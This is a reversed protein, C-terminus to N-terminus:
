RPVRFRWIQRLRGPGAYFRDRVEARLTIGRRRAQRAVGRPLRVTIGHRRSTGRALRRHRGDATTVVLYFRKRYPLGRPREFTLRRRRSVPRDPVPDIGWSSGTGTALAECSARVTLGPDSRRPQRPSDQGRHPQVIRDRGPGCAARGPTWSQTDLVDDGRGGDLRHRRLSHATIYDDGGRGHIRNAGGGAHLQNDDGDGYLTDDGEGGFVVEVNVLTDNEGPEGQGDRRSLDVRVAATRLYSAVQDM